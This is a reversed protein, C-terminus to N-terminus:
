CGLQAVAMLTSVLAVIAVSVGGPSLAIAPNAAGGKDKTETGWSWLLSRLLAQRIISGSLDASRTHTEKPAPFM